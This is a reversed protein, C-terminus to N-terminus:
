TPISLAYTTLLLVDFFLAFMCVDSLWTFTFAPVFWCLPVYSEANDTLAEGIISFIRALALFLLTIIYVYFLFRINIHPLFSMIKILESKIEPNLGIFGLGGISLASFGTWKLWV